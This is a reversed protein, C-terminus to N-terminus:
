MIPTGWKSRGYKHAFNYTQPNTYIYPAYDHIDKFVCAGRVSGRPVLFGGRFVRGGEFVGRYVEVKAKRLVECDKVVCNHLSATGRFECYQLRCNILECDELVVNKFTRDEHTGTISPEDTATTWTRRYPKNKDICFQAVFCQSCCAGM